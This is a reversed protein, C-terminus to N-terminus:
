RTKKAGNTRGKTSKTRRQPNNRKWETGNEAWWKLKWQKQAWSACSDSCYETRKHSAFFYPTVNCDPRKCKRASERLSLLLPVMAGYLDPAIFLLGDRGLEFVGQQIQVRRWPELGVGLSRFPEHQNALGIIGDWSRCFQRQLAMWMSEKFSFRLEGEKEYVDMPTGHKRVFREIVVAESRCNAFEMLVAPDPIRYADTLKVLTGTFIPEGAPTQRLTLEKVATDPTCFQMKQSLKM